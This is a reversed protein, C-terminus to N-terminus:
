PVPEKAHVVAKRPSQKSLDLNATAARDAQAGAVKLRRAREAVADRYNLNRLHLFILRSVM